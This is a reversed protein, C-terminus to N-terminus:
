QVVSELWGVGVFVKKKGSFKGIGIKFNRGIATVNWKWSLMAVHHPM